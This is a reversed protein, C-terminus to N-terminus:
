AVDHLISFIRQALSQSIGPVKAIEDLSARNLAQIGGFYRLLERRRKAGIGPIDELTSTNRKKDRRLRHGTIAFRHAEDRVQQILHLAMSDTPLHLPQKGPVHLTELGPKRGEGKCVGILFVSQIGLEALSKEAAHLQAIGGDILLVEPLNKYDKYRKIIAQHLAAVDDGPTINKIPYRRYDSKLPGSKNFVVCAGVTAEGMTHSIDFCEIREPMNKLDFIKQLAIFRDLINAKNLLHTMVSQHASRTAMELWKKREGRVHSSLVVKCGSQDSLVQEIWDQDPLTIDTIIERPIDQQVKLYHQTIFSALIEETSAHQPIIPFYARSGLIRGGRITLLQACAMGADIALGIIDVDTHTTSIYQREQIERLKSIQDRFIAASEFQRERSAQEMKKSLEDIIQENKGQLFLVAHRIQHQYEDAEILDVCPGSCRGIQYQLCPRSRASFFSDSCIRLKFLKQILSITERVATSNPYPGFFLGKSKRQGRYFDIRPFPHDETILIYPYSKDDRFLVNYHPKYKKILNCELLLAENENNTVTLSIDVVHKLLAHTKIDQQKASFYSSLRKKLNRAKGVYLVKGDEDLMQYVGPQSTLSGLFADINLTANPKKM